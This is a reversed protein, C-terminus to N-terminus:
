QATEWERLLDMGMAKQEEDDAQDIYRSMDARAKKYEGLRRWAHARNFLAAPMGPALELCRDYDAIAADYRQLGYLVSGRAFITEVSEPTLVLARNLDALASDHRRFQLYVEARRTLLVPDDPALSVAKELDALAASVQGTHLYADARAAYPESRNPSEAIAQNFHLVAEAHKQQGALALGRQLPEGGEAMIVPTSIAQPASPQAQSWRHLDVVLLVAGGCIVLYVVARM